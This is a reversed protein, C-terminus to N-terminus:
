PKNVKKHKTKTKNKKVIIMKKLNEKRKKMDETGSHVKHNQQEAVSHPKEALLGDQSHSQKGLYQHSSPITALLPLLHDCLSRELSSCPVWAM